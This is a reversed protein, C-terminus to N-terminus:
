RPDAREPCYRLFQSEAYRFHMQVSSFDTGNSRAIKFMTFRGAQRAEKEGPLLMEKNDLQKRLREQETKLETQHKEDQRIRELRRWLLM